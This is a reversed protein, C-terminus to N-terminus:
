YQEVVIQRIIDGLTHMSILQIQVKKKQLKKKMKDTKWLNVSIEFFFM